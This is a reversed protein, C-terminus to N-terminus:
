HAGHEPIEAGIDNRLLLCAPILVLLLVGLVRFDDSFALLRAQEQVMVQIVAQAQQTAHALSAGLAHFHQTLQDLLTTFTSNYPNIHEVLRNHHIQTQQTLYTTLLSIGISGGLNRSLNILASVQDTKATSIGVYAINTIPIFMFALGLAQYVRMWLITSFDVALTLGAFLFMSTGVILLGFMILWKAAIRGSLVGVVPMMAMVALGGPSLVLGALTATYGLLQQVFQPILVTSGLLAFGLLLMLLNAIGFNANKLLRLDVIPHRHHWEWVVLFLLSVSAIAALMLIFSSAFWDEQQGKDLMLQLAGLGLALLAFGMYDVTFGDRLRAKRAAIYEPSDHILTTALFILLVGVPVNILFIWHWSITDTIWGGLTPGIAPAVVVAIGYVAFAMGRKAAPFSDALIAQSVPQLGGGGIGQLVRFVILWELSPAIGCLLSAITFIAISIIFFRKRGILQSLWGSIPLVIANAVLYSTLVWTAEEYSASLSGAIHRLSVNAISIDLVEMFAAMGVVLAILWPNVAPRSETTPVPEATISRKSLRPVRTPRWM